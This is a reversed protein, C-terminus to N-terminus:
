KESEVNGIAEEDVVVHYLTAAVIRVAARPPIDRLNSTAKVRQGAVDIEGAPNLWTVSIGSQGILDTFPSPSAIEIIIGVVCDGLSWSIFTVVIGIWMGFRYSWVVVALLLLVVGLAISEGINPRSKM